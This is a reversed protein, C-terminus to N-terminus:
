PSAPGLVAIAEVDFGSPGFTPTPDYVAHGRVDRAEGGVVDVVRVFRVDDLDVRGTAVAACDRLMALDFGTGFGGAYRGAVGIVARADLTGYAGVPETQFSLAPFRAFSVGDSSVEVFALELFASSFGNEFIALDLGDHDAIPEDFTFTLSGGNGLSVADDWAGTAPGFAREVDTWAPDLESGFDARAGLGSAWGVIRSDDLAVGDDAREGEDAGPLADVVRYSATFTAQDRCPAPPAAWRARVTTDGPTALVVEPLAQWGGDADVVAGAPVPLSAGVPLSSFRPLAPPLCVSECAGAETCREDDACACRAAQEADCASLAFPAALAVLGAWALKM